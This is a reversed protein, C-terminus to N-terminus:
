PIPTVKSETINALGGKAPDKALAECQAKADAESNATLPSTAFGAPTGAANTGKASCNYDKPGQTVKGGGGAPQLSYDKGDDGMGCWIWGTGGPVASGSIKCWHDSRQRVLTVQSNRKVSGVPKGVGGPQAYVDVSRPISITNAAMAGSSAMSLAVGLLMLIAPTWALQLFPFKRM